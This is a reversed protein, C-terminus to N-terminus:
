REIDVQNKLEQILELRVHHVDVVGGQQAHHPLEPCLEVPHGDKVGGVDQGATDEIKPSGFQEVLCDIGGGLCNGLPVQQVKVGVAIGDNAQVLGGGVLHALKAIGPADDDDGVPAVQLHEVSRCKGVRGAGGPFQRKHAEEALAFVLREQQLHHFVQRGAIVERQVALRKGGIVQLFQLLGNGSMGEVHGKGTLAALLLNGGRQLLRM